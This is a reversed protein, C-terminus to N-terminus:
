GFLALAALFVVLAIVSAAVLAGRRESASWRGAVAHGHRGAARAKRSRVADILRALGGRPRGGRAAYAALESVAIM